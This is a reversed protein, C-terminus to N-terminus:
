RGADIVFLDSALKDAILKGNGILRIHADVLEALGDEVWRNLKNEPFPSNAAAFKEKLRDLSVGAKTRFKTMMLENLQDAPSLYEIEAPIIGQEIQKIYQANNAVNWQRSVQNFSHAAPGIGLYNEQNWYSTNHRSFHDNKAFNSTEYAEFGNQELLAHTLEFCTAMHTEPVEQFSGQKKQHGFVTKPEVTLSYASIHTVGTQIAQLIDAELDALSNGPLGYILDISINTLGMEQADRIAQISQGAGHNRNLFTLNRDQFSQIGISLRNIGMSMLARLYNPTLDEPNAELTIEANPEVPFNERITALIQILAAPALLSPTGGGFYITELTQGTLYDKQLEIERQIAVVMAEKGALRTSFHFDCYHCAQHCFPIHVYLHV